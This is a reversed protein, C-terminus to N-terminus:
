RVVLRFPTPIKKPLSQAFLCSRTSDEAHFYPSIGLCIQWLLLPFALVRETMKYIFASSHAGETLPLTSMANM